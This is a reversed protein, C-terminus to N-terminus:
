KELSSLTKLIRQLVETSNNLWDISWVHILSWGLLSLVAPRVIERDRATKLQYYGKGDCMIGLIYSSASQPNVVAIDVKFSSSGVSTRVEYGAKHLEEVIQNIMSNKTYADREKNGKNLSAMSGQEAFMIFKKLEAVGKADSKRDDIQEPRLSSFLKMEYRARSAAVNLRREGGSLKLPGFNNSVKGSCDPGYGISFLIIDREDGQVNELNKVFIQEEKARDIAELEPHKALERFLLTEISDSQSKSFAVIGISRNDKSKLRDIVEDVIAQAEIKNSSNEYIGDVYQCSVHSVVDDSSPFTVLNGGYFSHNCFSILSEHKSRYHWGLYRSPMSLAICDDLISEQDDLDSEEDSTLKVSFFSTPPMQNPDGVIVASKGRAIAGVAESTPLQSAEDFIVIDFPESDLDIFQAVSVPSMLMCPCLRKMVNPMEQIITRVTNGRGGNGIRRRLLTLESSLEPEHIDRQVKEALRVFLEKRILSQFEETRTKYDDLIRQFVTGNFKSLSPDKKVIYLAAQHYYSKMFVDAVAQPSLGSTFMDIIQGLGMSRLEDFRGCYQKWVPLKDANSNWREVIEKIQAIDDYASEEIDVKQTFKKWKYDMELYQKVTRHIFSINKNREIQLAAKDIIQPMSSLLGEVTDGPMSPMSSGFSGYKPQSEDKLKMDHLPFLDLPTGLIGEGSDLSLLRNYIDEIDQRTKSTIFTEPLVIIPGEINLYNDICEYLSYGIGSRNHLAEVYNCLEIRRKFLEDSFDKFSDNQYNCTTNITDDMQELFHKKDVKNSHLELCFPGIGIKNLRNYVVELAAKKQAVFLVRKGHYLANAIMNTITQSKGTGPPGYLLFSRGMACDVVAEFQSSDSDVVLAYDAPMFKKDFNRADNEGVSDTVHLRGDVLSRVIPNELLKGAHSHIDNWMVFKTFSFVGLCSDEVLKWDSRQSIAQRVEDMVKSVDVGHEDLPLPNTLSIHVDYNYALFEFLTINAVYEEDRKRLKYEDEKATPVLEVPILLVPASGSKGDGSWNLTGLTLFLTNAGSEEMNARAARFLPTLEPQSLDVENGVSLEDELVAISGKDILLANKGISMNILNNSMSMDLLKREWLQLKTMLSM